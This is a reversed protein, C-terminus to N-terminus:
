KNRVQRVATLRQHVLDILVTRPSPRCSCFSIFYSSHKQKGETNDRLIAVHMNCRELLQVFCENFAFFFYGCKLRYNCEAQHRHHGSTKRQPHNDSKPIYFLWSAHPWTFFVHWMNSTFNASVHCHSTPHQAFPVLQRVRSIKAKGWFGNWNSHWCIYM